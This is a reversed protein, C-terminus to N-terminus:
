LLSAKSEIKLPAKNAFKARAKNVAFDYIVGDSAWGIACIAASLAKVKAPGETILAAIPALAVGIGMCVKKGKSYIGPNVGTEAFKDADNRRKKNIIADFIAGVGITAGVMGVVGALAVAIKMQKTPMAKFGDIIETVDTSNTAVNVGALPLAILSLYKKAENSKEYGNGNKTKSIKGTFGVSNVSGVNM